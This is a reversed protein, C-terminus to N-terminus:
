ILGSSLHHFFTVKILLISILAILLNIILLNILIKNLKTEDLIMCLNCAYYDFTM